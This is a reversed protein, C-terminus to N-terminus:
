CGWEPSPVHLRSRDPSDPFPVDQSQFLDRTQNALDLRGEILEQSARANNTKDWTKAYAALVDSTVYFRGKGDASANWEKAFDLYNIKRKSNSSADIVFTTLKSFFYKRAEPSTPPLIPLAVGQRRRLWDNNSNQNYLRATHDDYPEMNFRIRLSEPVACVGFKETTREYLDANMWQGYSNAGDIIDSLYNLLFSTRNILALDHHYEWDVGFVHKAMAQLNYQTRHDTLSNVTLRPAAHLAGFKRYIDGHPGGELKNTGRTCNFLTLGHEDVGAKEYLVVGIPDSLYGERALELVANAKQWGAKNFLPLGSEADRANGFVNYVHQIAPVLVSPAPVYRPTRTKIWRPHRLLMADFGMKFVRRCVEDVRARIVPDWRMMHDRLTRLFVARLGHTSSLPIM